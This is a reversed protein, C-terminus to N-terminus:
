LQGVVALCCLANVSHQLLQLRAKGPCCAWLQSGTCCCARCSVAGALLLLLFLWRCQLLALLKHTHNIVQSM